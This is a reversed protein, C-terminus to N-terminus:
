DKIKTKLMEYVLKLVQDQTTLKEALESNFDKYNNKIIQSRIEEICSLLINEIESRSQVEKFYLIKYDRLNQKEIKLLKQLRNIIAEYRLPTFDEISSNRKSIIPSNLSTEIGIHKASASITSHVPTILVSSLDGKKENRKIDFIRKELGNIELKAQRLESRLRKNESEYFTNKSEIMSISAKLLEYDTELEKEKKVLKDIQEFKEKKERELSGIIDQLKANFEITLLDEKKTVLEDIKDQLTQLLKFMKEYTQTIVEENQEVVEASYKLPNAKSRLEKLYSAVLNKFKYESSEVFTERTEWHKVVNVLETNKGRLFEIEKQLETLQIGRNSKVPPLILSDSIRVHYNTHAKSM